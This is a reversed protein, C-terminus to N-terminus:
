PRLSRAAPRRTSSWGNGRCATSSCTIRAFHNEGGVNRLRESMLEYFGDFVIFPAEEARLESFVAFLECIAAAFRNEAEYVVPVQAPGTPVNTIWQSTLSPRQPYGVAECFMKAALVLAQGGALAQGNPM